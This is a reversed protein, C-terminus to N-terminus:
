TKNLEITKKKPSFCELQDINLGMWTNLNNSVTARACMGYAFNIM